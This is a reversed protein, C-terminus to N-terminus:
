PALFSFPAFPLNRLIGFALTAGVFAWILGPRPGAKLFPKGSHARVSNLFLWALFPSSLILLSNFRLASLFDGHLLSHVARLSGCGPCYLGTWVYLPCRPYFPYQTPSFLFLIVLAVGFGALMGSTKLYKESSVKVASFM